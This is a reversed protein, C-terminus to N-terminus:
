SIIIGTKILLFFMGTLFIIVIIFGILKRIRKHKRLEKDLSKLTNEELNSLANRLQKLYVNFTFKYLFITIFYIFIYFVSLILIKDLEFVGDNNEMTLNIGFTAFVISLAVTHQVLQFRTNFYKIKYLLLKHLNFEKTDM